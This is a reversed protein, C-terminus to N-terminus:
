SRITNFFTRLDAVFLDPEYAALKRIDEREARAMAGLVVERREAPLRQIM